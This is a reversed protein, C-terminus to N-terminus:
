LYIYFGIYYSETFIQERVYTYSCEKNDMDEKSLYHVMTPPINGKQFNYRDNTVWLSCHGDPPYTNDILDSRVTIEKEGIIISVNHGYYTFKLLKIEKELKFWDIDSTCTFDSGHYYPHENSVCTPELKKFLVVLDHKHYREALEIATKEDRNHCKLTHILQLSM